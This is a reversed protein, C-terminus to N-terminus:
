NLRGQQKFLEIENLFDKKRDTSDVYSFKNGRYGNM